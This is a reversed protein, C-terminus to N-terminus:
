LPNGEESLEYQMRKKEIDMRQSAPITLYLAHVEWLLKRIETEKAYRADAWGAFGSLMGIGTLVLLWFQITDSGMSFKFM